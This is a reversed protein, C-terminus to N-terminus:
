VREAHSGYDDYLLLIQRTFSSLLDSVFLLFLLIEISVALRSRAVVQEYSLHEVLQAVRAQM